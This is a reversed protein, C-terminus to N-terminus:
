HQRKKIHVMNSFVYNSHERIYTEYDSIRIYYKRGWSSVLLWEETMALVTVYHGHITATKRFRSQSVETYLSVGNKAWLVPFSPGVALIVPIDNQLQEEMLSFLKKKSMIWSAYYPLGTSRFMQNIGAALMIGNIGSPYLLPFFRHQLDQLNASYEERSSPFQITLKDRIHLYLLLDYAAVVGCGCKKLIRQDTWMQSGGFSSEDSLPISIYDHRISANM